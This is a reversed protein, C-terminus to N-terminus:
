QGFTNDQLVVTIHIAESAFEGRFDVVRIIQTCQVLDCLMTPTATPRTPCIESGMTPTISMSGPVVIYPDTGISDAVGAELHSPGPCFTWLTRSGNRLCNSTIEVYKNVIAGEFRVIMWALWGVPVNVQIKSGTWVIYSDGCPDNTDTPIAIQGTLPEDNVNVSETSAQQSM